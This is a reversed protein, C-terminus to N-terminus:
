NKWSWEPQIRRSRGTGMTREDNLELVHKMGMLEPMVRQLM